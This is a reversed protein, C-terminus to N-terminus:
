LELTPNTECVTTTTTTTTTTEWTMTDAPCKSHDMGNPQPGMCEKFNSDFWSSGIHCFKCMNQVIEKRFLPIVGDYGAWKQKTTQRSEPWAELNKEGPYRFVKTRERYDVLSPCNM